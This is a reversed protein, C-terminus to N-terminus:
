FTEQWFCGNKIAEPINTQGKLQYDNEYDSFTGDINSYVSWGANTYSITKSSRAMGFSILCEIDGQSAKEKLQKLSKIKIYKM